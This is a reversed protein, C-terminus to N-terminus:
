PRFRVTTTENIWGPVHVQEGARIGMMFASENDMFHQSYNRILANAEAALSPDVAIARQLKDVAANFVLGRRGPEPFINNATAAYLSGILMYASGNNPNFRLAELAAARAASHSNQSARIRAIQMMYNSATNADTELNAAETYLRIATNMDGERQARTAMGVAATATPEIKYLLESITIFLDSERCGVQNLSRLVENLFEKNDKNAEVKDAYFKTLTDCDGAGSAIFGASISERLGALYEATAQESVAQANAIAADIYGTIRFYDEVYQERLSNDRQFRMFSATLFHWFADAPEMKAGMENIAEGLWQYVINQDTQNDMMEMYDYTKFALVTARSERHGFHKMRNDYLEMVKDVLEQRKTPDTEQSHLHKFISPGYIYINISSAPCNEYVHTWPGLAGRFDEARYSTQLLSLNQICRVSDEGTGFPSVVQQARAGSLMLVAIVGFLLLKKM